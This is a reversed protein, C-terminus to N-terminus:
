MIYTWTGTCHDYNAISRLGFLDLCGYKILNMRDHECLEIFPSLKKSMDIFTRFRYEFRAGIVDRYGAMMKGEEETNYTLTKEASLGRTAALLERLRRGELENLQNRYDTIPRHIRIIDPRCSQGTLDHSSLPSLGPTPSSDIYIANSITNTDTIDTNLEQLDKENGNRLM